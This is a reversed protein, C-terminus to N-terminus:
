ITRSLVNLYEINNDGITKINFVSYVSSAACMSNTVFPVQTFNTQSTLITLFQRLFVKETFYLLMMLDCVKFVHNPNLCSNSFTHCAGAHAAAAKSSTPFCHFLFIFLHCIQFDFSRCVFLSVVGEGAKHPRAQRQTVKELLPFSTLQGDQHDKDNARQTSWM